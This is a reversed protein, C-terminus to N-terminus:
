HVRAPAVSVDEPWSVEVVDSQEALTPAPMTAPRLKEREGASVPATPDPRFAVPARDDADPRPRDLGLDPALYEVTGASALMRWLGYLLGGAAAIGAGAVAVPLLTSKSAQSKSARPTSAQAQSAQSRPARPKAAQSKSSRAAPTQPTARSVM